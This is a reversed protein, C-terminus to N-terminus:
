GHAEERWLTEGEEFFEFNRMREIEDDKMDLAHMLRLFRLYHSCKLCRDMFGFNESKRFSCLVDKWFLCSLVKSEKHKSSSFRVRKGNSVKRRGVM